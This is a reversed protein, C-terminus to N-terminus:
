HGGNLKVRKGSPHTKGRPTSESYGQAFIDPDDLQIVQIFLSNLPRSGPPSPTIAFALWSSHPLVRSIMVHPPTMITAAARHRPCWKWCILFLFAINLHPTLPVLSSTLSPSPIKCRPFPNQLRRLHSKALASSFNLDSFGGSLVITQCYHIM